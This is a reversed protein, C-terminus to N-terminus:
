DVFLFFLNSQGDWDFGDPITCDSVDCELSNDPCEIPYICSGDDITADPNYNCATSDTCDSGFSMSFFIILLIYFLYSRM